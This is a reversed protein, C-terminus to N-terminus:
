LSDHLGGADGAGLNHKLFDLNEFIHEVVHFLLDFGFEFEVDIDLLCIHTGVMPLEHVVM